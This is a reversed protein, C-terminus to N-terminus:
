DAPIFEYHNNNAYFEAYSGKKGYITLGSVDEFADTAIQVTAEPIYIKNLNQCDAFARKGISTLGEPLEVYVFTGGVFAEEGIKELSSPLILDPEMKEWVAYLTVDKNETYKGGTSYSIVASAANGDAWGLFKYGEREPITGQLTIDENYYKVQEAPANTGGNADYIVKYEAKEFFWTQALSGNYYHQRVNTGDETKGDQVDVVFGSNRNVLMYGGNQPIICWKQNNASNSSWLQINGCNDTSSGVVEM